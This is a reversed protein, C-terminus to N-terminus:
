AAHPQPRVPHVAEEDPGAVRRPRAHRGTPWAATPRHAAAGHALEGHAVGDVASRARALKRARWRKGLIRGVVGLLLLTLGSGLVLPVALAPFAAALLFAM